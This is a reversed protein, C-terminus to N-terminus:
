KFTLTDDLGYEKECSQRIEDLVMKAELPKGQVWLVLGLNPLAYDLMTPKFDPLSRMTDASRRFCMEAKVFAQNLGYALGTENWIYAEEHDAHDQGRRGKHEMYLQRWRNNYFLAAACDGTETAAAGQYNSCCRLIESLETSDNGGSKECIVEVTAFYKRSEEPLGRELLYRRGTLVNLCRGLNTHDSVM